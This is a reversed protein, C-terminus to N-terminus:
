IELLDNLIQMMTEKSTSDEVALIYLIGQAIWLAVYGNSSPLLVGFADGVRIKEPATLTTEGTDANIEHVPRVPFPSPFYPKNYVILSIIRDVELDESFYALEGYNITAGGTAGNDEVINQQANLLPLQSYKSSVKYLGFPVARRLDEENLFSVSSRKYTQPQNVYSPISSDVDPLLVFGHYLEGVNDQNQSSKAQVSSIAKNQKLLQPTKLAIIAGMFGPISTQLFARRHHNHHYSPPSVAKYQHILRIIRLAKKIGLERTLFLKMSVGTILKRKGENDQLLIMPEWLWNPHNNNLYDKITPDNLSRIELWQDSEKELEMAIKSCLECNSNFLLYHKM